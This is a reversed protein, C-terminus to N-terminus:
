EDFWFYIERIVVPKAAGEDAKIMETIKYRLQDVSVAEPFEYDLIQGADTVTAPISKWPMDMEKAEIVAGSATPRSRDDGFVVRIGKLDASEPFELGIDCPVRGTAPSWSTDLRGDFAFLPLAAGSAGPSSTSRPKYDDVLELLMEEIPSEWHATPLPGEELQAADFRLLGAGTASVVPRVRFCGEPATFSYQARVFEDERLQDVGPAQASGLDRTEAKGDPLSVRSSAGLTVSQVKKGALYISFTYTKGPFVAAEPGVVRVTMGSPLVLKASREGSEAAKDDVLIPMPGKVNGEADLSEARWPAGDSKPGLDFEFDSLMLLNTSGTENEFVSRYVPFADRGFEFPVPPRTQALASVALLAPIILGCASFRFRGM